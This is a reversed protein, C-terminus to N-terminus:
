AQVGDLLEAQYGNVNEREEDSVEHGERDSVPRIWDGEHYDLYNPDFYFKCKRRQNVAV